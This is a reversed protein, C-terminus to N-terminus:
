ALSARYKAIITKYVLMATEDHSHFCEIVQFCSLSDLRALDTRSQLYNCVCWDLYSDCLKGECKLEIEVDSTISFTMLRNGALYVECSSM